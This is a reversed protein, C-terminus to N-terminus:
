VPSCRRTEGTGRPFTTPRSATTPAPRSAACRSGRMTFRGDQDPRTAGVYRTFPLAWRQPDESFIVVTYDKEVRGGPGTVMGSVRTGTSSISVELGTVAEGSKFDIATDTVDAGNLRVSKVAWGPPFGVPRILHMGTLGRVDFTGDAKVISLGGSGPTLGEVLPMATVRVSAPGPPRAGEFTLIGSASAGKSTVVVLNQVDEGAITLPVSATEPDPSGTGGLRATATMRDGSGAMSQASHVQLVYDGPAIGAITFAGSRGTRVSGAMMPMSSVDGRPAVTLMREEAPRGDAALVTGSIRALRVPVLAFDTGHAEQGIAVTVKQAEAGNPTGPFYTPAYGSPAAGAQATPVMPVPGGFSVGSFEMAVPDRVTASVYYDGPPLGYIRFQGLDNTMATRGAPQLRRKGNSWVSRMGTVTADTIPDGFEDLVRGAIASGRPLTIDAQELKQGAALEIPKGLEFSRSQGFQVTMYGPKTAMLTVRGAPLGDFVFRGDGDTLAMRSGIDAGMARVQARRVGSGTEAGVVRGRIRATGTKMSGPGARMPAVPGPAASGDIIVAPRDQAATPLPSLLLPFLCVGARHLTRM